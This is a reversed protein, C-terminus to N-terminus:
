IFATLIAAIGGLLGGLAIVKKWLDSKAKQDSQILYLHTSAESASMKTEVISQAHNDLREKMAVINRENENNKEYIKNMWSDLKINITNSNEDLKNSLKELKTDISKEVNHLRTDISEIKSKTNEAIVTLTETTYKNVM